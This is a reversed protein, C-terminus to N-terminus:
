LFKLDTCQMYIHKLNGVTGKFFEKTVTDFLAILARKDFCNVTLGKHCIM